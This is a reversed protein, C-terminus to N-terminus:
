ASQRQRCFETYLRELEEAKFARPDRPGRGDEQPLEAIFTLFEEAEEEGDMFVPGFVWDDSSCFLCAIERSSGQERGVLIKTGM